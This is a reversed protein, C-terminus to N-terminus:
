FDFWFIDSNMNQEMRLKRFCMKNMCATTSQHTSRPHELGGRFDPLGNAFWHCKRFKGRVHRGDGSARGWGRSVGELDLTSYFDDHNDPHRFVLVQPRWSAGSSKRSLKSILWVEPSGTSRTERCHWFFCAVRGLLHKFTVILYTKTM